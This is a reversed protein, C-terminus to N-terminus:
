RAYKRLILSLVLLALGIALYDPQHALMAMPM